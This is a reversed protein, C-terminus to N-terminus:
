VEEFLIDKYKKLNALLIKKNREVISKPYAKCDYSKIKKVLDKYRIKLLPGGNQKILDLYDQNGENGCGFTCIFFDEEMEEYSYNDYEKYATICSGNDFCNAMRLANGEKDLIIGMNNLTRDNNMIIFDLSIQKLIANKVDEKSLGKIIHLKDVITDLQKQRIEVDADYDILFNDDENLIKNISSFEEGEALFNKSVCCIKLTKTEKDQLGSVKYDCYNFDEIESEILCAMEESLANRQGFLDSEADLKYFMNNETFKPLAGDIIFSSDNLKEELSSVEISNNSLFQVRNIFDEDTEDNNRHAIHNCGHRGRQNPSCSCYTMRNDTTLALVKM